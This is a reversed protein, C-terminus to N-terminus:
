KLLAEYPLNRRFCCCCLWQRWLFPTKQAASIPVATTAPASEETAHIVRTGGVAFRNAAPAEERFLAEVDNGGAAYREAYDYFLEAIHGFLELVGHGTKASTETYVLDHARAFARAAEISVERHAPVLDCKNGVLYATCHAYTANRYRKTYPDPTWGSDALWREIRQFSAACGVDFIYVIAHAFKFYTQVLSRFRDQGATDWIQLTVHERANRIALTHVIFDIGITATHTNDFFRNDQLRRLLASKGVGAAGCTVVRIAQKPNM